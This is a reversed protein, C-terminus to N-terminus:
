HRGIGRRRGVREGEGELENVRGRGGKRDM